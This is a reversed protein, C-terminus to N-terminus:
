EAKTPINGAQFKRNVDTGFKVKVEADLTWEHLKVPGQLASVITTHHVTPFTKLQKEKFSVRNLKLVYRNIM